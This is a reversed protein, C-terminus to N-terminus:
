ISDSRIEPIQWSSINRIDLGDVFWDEESPNPKVPRVLLPWVTSRWRRVRDIAGNERFGLVQLLQRLEPKPTFSYTQILGFPGTRV